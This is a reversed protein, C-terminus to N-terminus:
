LGAPVPFGVRAGLAPEQVVQPPLPEEDHLRGLAQPLRPAAPAPLRPLPEGAHHRQDGALEGEPDAGPRLREQLRPHRGRRRRLAAPLARHPGLLAGRGPGRLRAAAADRPGDAAAVQAGGRLHVPRDDGAGHERLRRIAGGLGRARAPERLHLGARLRARRVGLPDLEPRHLAGAARPEPQQAHLVPRRDKPGQHRLAQARVHREACGSRHHPRAQGRAVLQGM